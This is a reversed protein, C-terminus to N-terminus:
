VRIGGRFSAKWMPNWYDEMITKVTAEDDLVVGWEALDCVHLNQSGLYACVDDVLFHKAHMGLRAM